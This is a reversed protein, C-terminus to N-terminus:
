IYYFFTPTKHWFAHGPIAKKCPLLKHVWYLRRSGGGDGNFMDLAKLLRHETRATIRALPKGVLNHVTKSPGCFINDTSHQRIHIYYITAETSIFMHMLFYHLDTVWLRVSVRLGFEGGDLVGRITLNMLGVHPGDPPRCSGPPGWTPGMFKAIQSMVNFWGGRFVVGVWGVGVGDWPLIIQKPYNKRWIRGLPPFVQM